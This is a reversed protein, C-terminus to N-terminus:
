RQLPARYRCRSSAPLSRGLRARLSTTIRPPHRPLLHSAGTFKFHSILILLSIRDGLNM